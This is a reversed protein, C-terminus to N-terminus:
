YVIEVISFNSIIFWKLFDFFFFISFSILYLVGISVYWIMRASFPDLLSLSSHCSIMPIPPRPFFKRNLFLIM